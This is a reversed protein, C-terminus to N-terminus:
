SVPGVAQGCAVSSKVTHREDANITGIVAARPCGATVLAAVCADARPAPVVALLGGGTQPDSLLRQWHLPLAESGAYRELIGGSSPWLSSHVGAEALALSGGLLPIAAVDLCASRPHGRLLRDLHGSLGFGTVDTMCTAGHARCASAASRNSRAMIQLADDIDVGRAEASALAAFLTGIGLPETLILADGPDLAGVKVSSAAEGDLANVVLGVTLEDGEATHGGILACDDEDLASVIGRMLTALERRVIREHAHPLTLLLQASHARAASVHVDSLAHFAAIRGFLWPDDVIASIQDVSQVLRTAPLSIIAADSAEAVGALVDDRRSPAIEELIDDLLTAGVKAGCGRCRMAPEAEVRAEPDLLARDVVAPVGEFPMPPLDEFRRMFRRDIHDKLQWIARGEVQLRGRSAIASRDGTAMLSLFHKQPRFVQLPRGLLTARINRFLVPAQRVAFVGAKASPTDQQTGIDGTAFISPHSVSRLHADTAVFGRSDTALGSQTTWDPGQGGTCWLTEDLRVTKGARSNVGHADVAAVDFSRHVTVEAGEALAHARAGLRPPREALPSAQRLFWHCRVRERPLAHRLAMVLEFGGAGSGVVGVSLSSTPDARLRSEISTWRAHFASVPKVPTSYEAAGPVGFDPTSGTDLSLVDWSIEPRDRLTICRREADVGTVEARIFRVSAWHCLRLLDIHVEDVDYHGAVLGPLMGSYPTMVDRSVLTLRVGALPKMAWRRILLAHSHGGGVLMVDRVIPADPM